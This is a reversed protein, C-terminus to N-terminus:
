KETEKDIKTQTLPISTMFHAMVHYAATKHRHHHFSDATITRMTSTPKGYVDVEIQGNVVKCLVNLFPLKGDTQREITFKVADPEITDAFKEFM